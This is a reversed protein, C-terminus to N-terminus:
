PAIVTCDHAFAINDCLQKSYIKKLKVGGFLNYITM